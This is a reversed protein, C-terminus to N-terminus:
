SFPSLLSSLSLSLSLSLTVLIFGDNSCKYELIMCSFCLVYYMYSLVACM